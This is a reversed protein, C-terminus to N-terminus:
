EARGNPTPGCIVLCKGNEFRPQVSEVLVGERTFIGVQDDYKRDFKRETETVKKRPAFRYEEGQWSLRVDFSYRNDVVM